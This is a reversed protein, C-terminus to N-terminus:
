TPQPRSVSDLFPIVVAALPEAVTYNANHPSGAITALQGQPM